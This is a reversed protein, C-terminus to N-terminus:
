IPRRDAAVPASLLASPQRDRPSATTGLDVEVSARRPIPMPLAPAKPAPVTPSPNATPVADVVQTNRRGGALRWSVLFLREVRVNSSKRSKFAEGLIPVDGLFPVKNLLSSEQERTVGGLVLSEGTGLQIDTQLSSTNIMPIQHVQRDGLSGDELQISLMVFPGSHDRSVHPLVRMSMGASLTFLDGQDRGSVPVYFRTSDDFVAEVGSLTTLQPSSVMRAAGEAELASIRAFLQGAAGLVTQFQGGAGATAGILGNSVRAASRGDSSGARWNVGLERARDVRVDIISVEIEISQPEIDLSEILRGYGDLRDVRDFVIVANGVPAAEIRPTFGAAPAATPAVAEVRPPASTAVTSGLARVLADADAGRAAPASGGARAGQDLPRNAVPMGPGQVTSTSGTSVPAVESARMVPAGGGLLARLMSVMGPSKVLQGGVRRQRDQASVYRLPFVRFDIDPAGTTTAGPRSATSSTLGSASVLEDIQEVFRRTGAAVLSGESSRLLTNRLDPLGREQAERLVRDSAALPLQYSRQTMDAAPVVHMVAGDYYPVLNYLRAMQGLVQAAPGQFTGSVAANLNPAIAAPVGARALLDQLFAGVPQERATLSVVRQGNPLPGAQATLPVSAAALLLLAPLVAQFRSPQATPATVVAPAHM